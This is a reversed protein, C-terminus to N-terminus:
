EISEHLLQYAEQYKQMRQVDKKTPQQIRDWNMNDKLDAIKVKRGIENQNARKIFEFYTEDEKRTVSKIAEVVVDGFGRRLLDSVTIDTDEIIDHLVAVIQEEETEMAMMVRLPHLIYTKGSKDKQGAHAKAALEIAVELTSV